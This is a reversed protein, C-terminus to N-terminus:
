RVKVLEVDYVLWSNPPVNQGDGVSGYGMSPPVVLRRKEGVRMGELGINLGDIIDKDGLRFKYPTSDHNSDFVQGNEKLKGIYRISIKKGSVAVKGDPKGTELEEIVLGDSLTRLQSQKIDASRNKEDTSLIPTETNIDKGDEQIKRKKKKKKKKEEPQNENAQKEIQETRMPLDKDMSDSKVEDQQTKGEKNVDARYSGDAEFSKEEALERERRKRKKPKVDSVPGVKSSPPLSDLPLDASKSIDNAQKQHQENGVPLDQSINQAQLEDQPTEDNKIVMSDGASDAQLSNEVKAQDKRKKKSTVGNEAEVKSSPVSLHQLNDGRASEGNVVADGKDEVNDTEGNKKDDKEETEFKGSKTALNTEGNENVAKEEAELKINKTSDGKCLSSIPLMDETESDLAAVAATGNVLMQQQAGSDNDSESLQYKKRLRRRSGKGNKAKKRDLTEETVGDDSFPSPPFLKPDSDDIFSDDYDDEDSRATSRETETDAIDEGYSESEDHLNQHRSSGLFYGTLHVSRPGIVSFVVEDGEEFELNLQCCESKEPFLSCLFVPSKNGVNCQVVSKKTATGVGLTAQSIHLRGRADDATHTFPKGPKVEVGWFAM